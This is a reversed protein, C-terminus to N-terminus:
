LTIEDDWSSFLVFESDDIIVPVVCIKGKIAKVTTDVDKYVPPIMDLYLRDGLGTAFLGNINNTFEAVADLADLDTQEFEEGAYADAICLLSNGNGAFGLTVNKDGHMSQYAVKEYSLSSVFEAKGVYVSSDILRLILRVAALIHELQFSDCDKPLYLPVIKDVDGSKFNEIDEDSLNNTKQFDLLADEIEAISLYGKDNLTQAFNLYENGQLSLLKSVQDKSLYGKDVAIDGFRKDIVTQLHNVEDAQEVTMMKESVAILGLKVRVKSQEEYCSLLQENTLRGSEMLFRGFLRNVM